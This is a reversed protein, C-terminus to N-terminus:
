HKRVAAPLFGSDNDGVADLPPDFHVELSGYHCGVQQEDVPM